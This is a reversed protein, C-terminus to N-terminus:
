EKRSSFVSPACNFHLSTVYSLLAWKQRLHTPTIARLALVKSDNLVMALPPECSGAVAIEVPRELMSMM